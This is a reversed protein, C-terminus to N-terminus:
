QGEDEEDEYTAPQQSRGFKRWGAVSETVSTVALLGAAIYLGAPLAGAVLLIYGLVIRGDWGLFLNGLWDPPAVGQHRIRYVLDYHRFTLVALLAFAAPVADATAALWALTAYEGLRVLSPVAWHFSRKPWRASTTGLTLLLWAVAAAAVALSADRGAFAALALIAGDGLVLLLMAPIPIGGGVRLVRGLAGGIARAVPGDDRYVVLNDPIAPRDEAPAVPSVAAASM